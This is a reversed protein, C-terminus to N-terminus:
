SCNQSSTFGLFSHEDNFFSNEVFKLNVLHNSLSSYAQLSSVVTFEEVM